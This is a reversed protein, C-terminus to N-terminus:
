YVIAKKTTSMNGNTLKLLYIGKPLTIITQQDINQEMMKQGLINFVILRGAGEVTFNGSTPNPYISMSPDTTENISFDITILIPYGDNLNDEDYGWVETDSNLTTVFSPDRMETETMATGIGEGGCTNLYYNNEETGQFGNSVIGGNNGQDNTVIGVNYCNKVLGKKVIGGIGGTGQGSGNINGTNYCNMITTSRQSTGIIGGGGGYSIVNGTNYCESIEMALFGSIGGAGSNGKINGSNVCRSIKGGGYGVIGGIQDGSIDAHNMCKTINANSDCKGVIGGGIKANRIYGSEISINQIESGIGVTGFLGALNGGDIYLNYIKHGGGDFHGRFSNDINFYNSVTGRDCGDENFCKNGLGIPIWQRDENGSLDIDTTLVFYLDQTDFGKNVMYSLFALNEASEILYPSNETGEGRTWLKRGGDWVSTQAEAMIGTLAFMILIYIKKM